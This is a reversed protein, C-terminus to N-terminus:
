PARNPPFRQDVCSASRVQSPVQILRGPSSWPSFFSIDPLYEIETRSLASFIVRYTNAINFTEDALSAFAQQVEPINSYVAFTVTFREWACSRELSEHDFFAGGGHDGHFLVVLPGSPLNELQRILAQNTFKLKEVYGEIYKERREPSHQVFHSADSLSLSITERDKGDATLSFPPHPSLIHQFYFFPRSSVSLNNPEFASRVLSNYYVTAFRPNPWLRSLLSTEIGNLRLPPSAVRLAESGLRLPAYNTNTSAIQYGERRLLKPVVGESVAKGLTLRLKKDSLAPLHEAKVYAGNFVSATSFLTQNHPSVAQKMFIFGRRALTNEFASNDYGYIQSIVQRSSYGDLLIHIISPREKLVVSSLLENDLRISGPTYFAQGTLYLAGAFQTISVINFLVTNSEDIKAKNGVFIAVFLFSLIFFMAYYNSLLIFVLAIFASFVGAKHWDRVLFKVLLLLLLFIIALIITPRVVETAPFVDFFQGFDWLPVAAALLIPAFPFRFLNRMQQFEM